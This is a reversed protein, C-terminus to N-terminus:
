AVPPEPTLVEIGAFRTFHQQNYTYIRAVGNALMTAVLFLDFINQRTVEPHQRLLELTQELAARDPYVKLIHDARIYKEVEERAQESSCPTTVRRPSTVVAFFEMLIQPTVVLPVEGRFGRDRLQKSPEHFEATQDAAYVLINTDLLIRDDSTSM